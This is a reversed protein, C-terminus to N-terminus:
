LEFKLVYFLAIFELPIEFRNCPRSLIANKAWFCVKQKQIKKGDEGWLEEGDEQEVEDFIPPPPPDRLAPKKARKGEKRREAAEEKEKEEAEVVMQEQLKELVMAPDLEGSEVMTQIEEYQLLATESAGYVLM